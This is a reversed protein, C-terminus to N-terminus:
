CVVNLATQCVLRLRCVETLVDPNTVLAKRSSTTTDGAKSSSNSATAKGEKSSSKGKSSSSSTFSSLGFADKAVAAELAADDEYDSGYPSAMNLVAEPPNSTATTTSCLWDGRSQRQDLQEGQREGM